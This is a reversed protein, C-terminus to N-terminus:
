GNNEDFIEICAERFYRFKAALANAVQIKPLNSHFCIYSTIHTIM